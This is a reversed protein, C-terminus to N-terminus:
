RTACCSCSGYLATTSDNVWVRSARSGALEITPRRGDLEQGRATMDDVAKPKRSKAKPKQSKAQWSPDPLCEPTRSTVLASQPALASRPAGPEPFIPSNEPEPSNKTCSATTASYTTYEPGFRQRTRCGRGGRGPGWSGCWAGRRDRWQEGVGRTGAPCGRRARMFRQSVHRLRQQDKHGTM